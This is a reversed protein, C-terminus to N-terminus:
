SLSTCSAPSGNPRSFRLKNSAPGVWGNAYVPQVWMDMYSNLPPWRTNGSAANSRFVWKQHTSGDVDDEYGTLNAQPAETPASPPGGGGYWYFREVAGGSDQRNVIYNVPKLLQGRLSEWSPVMLLPSGSYVGPNERSFESNKGLTQRNYCVLWNGAGSGGNLAPYNATTTAGAAQLGTVGWQASAPETVPLAILAGLVGVALLRATRRSM